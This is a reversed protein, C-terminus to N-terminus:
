DEVLAGPITQLQRGPTIIGEQVVHVMENKSVDERVCQGEEVQTKKDVTIIHNQQCTFMPCVKLQM